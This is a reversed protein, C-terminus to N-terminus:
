FVSQLRFFVPNMMWTGYRRGFKGNFVAMGDNDVPNWQGSESIFTEGFMNICFHQQFCIDPESDWIEVGICLEKCIDNLTRYSAGNDLTQRSGEETLGLCWYICDWDNKGVIVASWIGDDDKKPSHSYKAELVQYIFCDKDKNQMIKLLRGIAKKTPSVVRLTYLCENAM